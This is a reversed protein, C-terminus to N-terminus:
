SSIRKKEGMGRFGALDITEGGVDIAGEFRGYPGFYEALSRGVGVHLESSIDPHFRVDVTGTADRILWAQNVGNPREFTVAGLRVLRGDIFVANENYREPDTIQNRTLNFGIRRGSPDINAGTVWDYQMPLPYDGKHDDMFLFSTSRDFTIVEEGITLTGDAAMFAKNSYLARTPSFPHCIVLHACDSPSAHATVDLLFPPLEPTGSHSGRITLGSEPLDNEISMELRRGSGHSRSNSLGQAIQLKWPPVREIWRRIKGTPWHVVILQLLGLSKASYVAGCMFWEDNGLQFAQWEKLRLNRLWRTRDTSMDLPNVSPIPANYTGFNYAGNTVLAPPPDEHPLLSGGSVRESPSVGM